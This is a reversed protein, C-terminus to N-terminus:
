SDVIPQATGPHAIVKTGYRNAGVVPERYRTLSTKGGTMVKANTWFFTDSKTYM